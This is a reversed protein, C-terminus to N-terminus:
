KKQALWLEEVQNALFEYRENAREILPRIQKETVFDEDLWDRLRLEFRGLAKSISERVYWAAAGAIAGAITGAAVIGGLVEYWKM